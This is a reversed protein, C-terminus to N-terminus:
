LETLLRDLVIQTNANRAFLEHTEAIKQARAAATHAGIRAARLAVHEAAHSFFLDRPERGLACAAVDRYFTALTDLTLALDSLKSLEESLEVRRGAHARELTQDIRLARELLTQATGEECLALARDARGDALAIAPGMAVDSVGRAELVHELVASPLRGFRVRQCRSRITILLRDPREALLVFCVNPRPEELTKLLANAAEPHQAPFSVDAEPFILFARREEFPAYMAVPLIDSRLTEVQLNRSGEDRPTFVRVDPHHGREIRTCTACQDCGRLPKEHCLAAKAMAVAAKQKGVGSPGDFLYAGPLRDGRLARELIRVAPNQGRIESLLV